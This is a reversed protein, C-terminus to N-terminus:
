LAEPTANYSIMLLDNIRTEIEKEKSYAEARVASIRERLAEQAALACEARSPVAIEVEGLLKYKLTPDDFTGDLNQPMNNLHWSYLIGHKAFNEQGEPSLYVRIKM